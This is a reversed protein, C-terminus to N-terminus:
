KLFKRYIRRYQLLVSVGLIAILGLYVYLLSSPSNTQISSGIAITLVLNILGLFAIVLAHVTYIMSFAMSQKDKGDKKEGIHYFLSPMNVLYPYKEFLTYRYRIVLLLAALVCTFIFPVILLTLKGAGTIRYYYIGVIWAVLFLLLGVAILTKAIGELGYRKLMRIAM